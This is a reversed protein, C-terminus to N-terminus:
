YDFKENKKDLISLFVKRIMYIIFYSVIVFYMGGFLLTVVGLASVMSDWNTFRIVSLTCFWLSMFFTSVSLLSLGLKLVNHEESLTSVWYMLLFAFLLPVLILFGALFLGSDKGFGDRTIEFSDALYGGTNNVSTSNCWVIYSFAQSFNSINSSTSYEWDGFSDVALVGRVIHRNSQNYIHIYCSLTSSNVLMRGSSNFIHFELNIQTNQVLFENHLPIISLTNTAVSTSASPKVASVSSLLILLLLLPLFTTKITSNLCRAFGKGSSNVEPFGSM